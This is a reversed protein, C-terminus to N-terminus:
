LYKEELLLIFALPRNKTAAVFNRQWWSGGRRKFLEMKGWVKRIIEVLRGLVESHDLIKAGHDRINGLLGGNCNDVNFTQKNSIPVRSRFSECTALYRIALGCMKAPKISERSERMVTNDKYSRGVPLGCGDRFPYFGNEHIKMLGTYWSCSLRSPASPFLREEKKWAALTPGVFM